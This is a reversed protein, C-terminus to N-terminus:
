LIFQLRRGYILRIINELTEEQIQSESLLQELGEHPEKLSM